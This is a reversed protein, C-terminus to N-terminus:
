QQSPPKCHQPAVALAVPPSPAVPLFAAVPLGAAIACAPLDNRGLLLLRNERGNLRPGTTAQRRDRDSALDSRAASSKPKGHHAYSLRYLEQNHDLHDRTRTGDSV